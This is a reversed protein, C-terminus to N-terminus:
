RRQHGLRSPARASATSNATDSVACCDDAQAQTVVRKYRQARSPSDTCRVTTVARWCAMRAEPTTQWGGCEAWGAAGLTLAVVLAATRRFLLEVVSPHMARWEPTLTVFHSSRHFVLANNMVIVAHKMGTRGSRRCIAPGSLLEPVGRAVGALQKHMDAAATAEKAADKSLRVLSDCHVAAQAIKTGRYTNATAAHENADATYQKAM